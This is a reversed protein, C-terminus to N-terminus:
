EIVGDAVIRPVPTVSYEALIARIVGGQHEGFPDGQGM